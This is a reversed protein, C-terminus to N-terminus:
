AVVPSAASAAVPVIPRATTARDADASAVVPLLVGVVVDPVSDPADDPLLELLEPPESAPLLEPTVPAPLLLPDTM